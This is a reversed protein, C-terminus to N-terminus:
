RLQEEVTPLRPRWKDGEEFDDLGLQFTSASAYISTQDGWAPGRERTSQESVCQPVCKHFMSGSLCDPQPPSPPCVPPLSSRPVPRHVPMVLPAPAPLVRSTNRDLSTTRSLTPPEVFCVPRSRFLGGTCSIPHRPSLDSDVDSEVQYSAKGSPHPWALPIARHAQNLDQGPATCDPIDEPPNWSRFRSNAICALRSTSYRGSIRGCSAASEASDPRVVSRVKLDEVASYCQFDLFGM